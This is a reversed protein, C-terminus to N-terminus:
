TSRLGSIPISPPAVETKQDRGSHPQPEAREDLVGPPLRDYVIENTIHGLIQPKARGKPPWVWSKLRYIQKYFEDPFRKAWALREEALYLALIRHLEDRDRDEQYGTVEDVLAIIGLKAFSRVLVECQNAIHLQQKRLAGAARAELVAECIEPLLEAEYGTATSGGTPARFRVPNNIRSSLDKTIFPSLSKGSSFKALRDGEGGGAGGISMGLSRVIGGLSLVRRGDDLVYCPIEANGIRLPRDASGHTAKPLQNAKAWREQAGRRAIDSRQEKSLKRARAKGGESQPTLPM